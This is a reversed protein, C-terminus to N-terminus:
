LLALISFTASPLDTCLTTSCAGKSPWLRLLTFSLRCRYWAYSLSRYHFKAKANLGSLRASWWCLCDHGLWVISNCRQVGWGQGRHQIVCQTCVSQLFHHERGWAHWVLLKHCVPPQGCLLTITGSVAGQICCPCTGWFPRVLVLDRHSPHRTHACTHAHTHAHTHTNTHICTHTHTQTHTYTHLYLTIFCALVSRAHHTECGRYAIPTFAEM